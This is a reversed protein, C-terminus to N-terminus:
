DTGADADSGSGVRTFEEHRGSAGILELTDGDASIATGLEVRYDSGTELVVVSPALRWWVANGLTGVGRDSRYCAPRSEFAGSDSFTIECAYSETTAWTGVIPDTNSVRVQLWRELQSGDGGFAVARVVILRDTLDSVDYRFSWSETGDAELLPGGDISVAV